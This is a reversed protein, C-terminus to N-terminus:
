IIMERYNNFLKIVLKEELYQNLEWIYWQMDSPNYLNHNDSWFTVYLWYKKCLRLIEQVWEKSARTNIEIANVWNDVYYKLLRSFEEIWENRFTHNPHAISLIAENKERLNGLVEISPEYDEIEIWYTDYKDWWSRLYREYFYKDKIELWNIKFLHSKNIPTAFIFNVIDFKNISDVSKWNSCAYNCFIKYDLQFWLRNLHEIQNKIMLVKQERTYKLISKIEDSIVRTYYTLHSSKNLKYNRASIETWDCTKIWFQNFESSKETEKDHNAFIIIKESNCSKKWVHNAVEEKTPLWDSEITHVHMDLLM